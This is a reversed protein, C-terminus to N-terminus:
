RGCSLDANRELSAIPGYAHSHNMASLVTGERRGVHLGGEAWVELEVLTVNLDLSDHGGVTLRTLYTENPYGYLVAGSITAGGAQYKASTQGELLPTGEGSIVTMEMFIDADVGQAFQVETQYRDFYLFTVEPMAQGSTVAEFLSDNTILQFSQPDTALSEGLTGYAASNEALVSMTDIDPERGERLLWMISGGGARVANNGLVSSDRIIVDGSTSCYLFGGYTEASNEQATTGQLQLDASETVIVAGGTACQSTDRGAASCDSVWDTEIVARNLALHAGMLHMSAFGQVRIAGGSSAVNERLSSAQVRGSAAEELHIAGGLDASNNTFACDSMNLTAEVTALLAGGRSLTIDQSGTARNSLFTCGILHLAFSDGAYAAAGSEARNSLFTSNRVFGVGGGQVLLVGGRAGEGSVATNEALTCGELVFYLLNSPATAIMIAGANGASNNFFASRLILHSLDQSLTMANIALAGHSTSPARNNSFLCGSMYLPFEQLAFRLLDRRDFAGGCLPPKLRVISTSR